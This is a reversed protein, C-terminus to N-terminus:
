ACEKDSHKSGKMMMGGPMRHMMKKKGKMKGKKMKDMLASELTVKAVKKGVKDKSLSGVTNYSTHQVTAPM